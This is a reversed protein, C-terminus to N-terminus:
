GVCRTISQCNNLDKLFDVRIGNEAHLLLYNEM